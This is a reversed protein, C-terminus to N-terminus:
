RAKMARYVKESTIPLDQIRIGCADRVANAIAGAVPINPSEAISKVNYPAAGGESPVLVTELKPIDAVTPVKVDGFSLTSVRGDESKLEEMLGFGIGMMVGGNIQGQHGIPNLVTGVDHATTFNLLTIEGTEPDVSVEAIQAVFGTSYPHSMDDVAGTGTIADGVRQLVDKWPVTDGSERNVLEEGVLLTREEAWGLLEAGLRVVKERAEVVAKNTADSEIRTARAAGLGSDFPATETTGVEYHVRAMPLGLEEAVIQRLSTNAGSGQDFLVTHLTVGGDPDMVVSTHGQGGGAPREGVGIGRGVNPPKPKFYGSADVAAELTERIRVDHYTLGSAM